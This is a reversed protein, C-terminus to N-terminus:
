TLDGALHEIGGASYYRASIPHQTELSNWATEKRIETACHVAVLAAGNQAAALDADSYVAETGIARSVQRMFVGWIGDDVSHSAAFSVVEDGSASIVENDAFGAKQIQRKATDADALNPFLALLYHTPYFVGVQTDGNKFFSSIRTM